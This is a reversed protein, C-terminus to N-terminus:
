EAMKVVGSPSATEFKPELGVSKRVKDLLRKAMEAEAKADADYIKEMESNRKGEEASAKLGISGEPTGLGYM